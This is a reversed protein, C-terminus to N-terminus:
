VFKKVDQSLQLWYYHESIVVITKEQDFHKAIGGSHKDKILNDRM